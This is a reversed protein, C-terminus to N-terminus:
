SCRGSGASTGRARTQLSLPGKDQMVGATRHTQSGSQRTRDAGLLLFLSPDAWRAAGRSTEFILGRTATDMGLLEPAAM